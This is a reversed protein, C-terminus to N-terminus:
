GSLAAPLTASGRQYLIRTCSIKLAGNGAENTQDNPSLPKGSISLRAPPRPAFPVCGRFKYTGLLEPHM